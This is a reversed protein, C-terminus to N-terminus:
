IHFINGEGDERNQRRREEDERRREEEQRRREEWERNEQERRAYMEDLRQRHLQEEYANQACRCPDHGCQACSQSSYDLDASASTTADDETLGQEKNNAVTRVLGPWGFIITAVLGDRVLIGPNDLRAITYIVAPVMMVFVTWNGLRGVLWSGLLFRFLFHSIVFVWAIATLNLGWELAQNLFSALTVAAAIAAHIRWKQEGTIGVINGGILLRSTALTLLFTGVLPWPSM